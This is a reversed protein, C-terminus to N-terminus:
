SRPHSNTPISATNDRRYRAAILAKIKRIDKGFATLGYGFTQAVDKKRASTTVVYLALLLRQNHQVEQAIRTIPEVGEGRTLQTEWSEPRAAKLTNPLLAQAEQRVQNGIAAAFNKEHMGLQHAAQQASIAGTIAQLAVLKRPDAAFHATMASAFLNVDITEDVQQTWGAHTPREGSLSAPKTYEDAAQGEFRPGTLAQQRRNHRHFQKPNGSYAVYIGAWVPGKDALLGPDAGLKQWLKIFGEQLCDECDDHSLGLRGAKAFAARRVQPDTIIQELTMQGGWRTPYTPAPTEPEALQHHGNAAGNQHAAPRDPSPYIVRELPDHVAELLRATVLGTSPAPSPPAPPVAESKGNQPKPGYGPLAAALDAKVLNRKKMLTSYGMGFTDAVDQVTVQTILCYLGLLLAPTDEVQRSVHGLAQELDIWTDVQNSTMLAASRQQGADADYVLKHYHRLHSYRQAKSRFLIAQVIYRKPKAAFYDPNQQLQQWVKFYGAQMCDDIDEPNTMGHQERMLYGVTRSTQQYLQEFSLLGIGTPYM